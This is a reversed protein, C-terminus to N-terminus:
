DGATRAAHECNWCLEFSKPNQEQCQSCTWPEDDATSDLTSLTERVVEVAQDVDSDNSIWIESPPRFAPVATHGSHRNQISAEIGRHLLADHVLVTESLEVSSFVKRM